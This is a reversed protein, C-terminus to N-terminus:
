MLGPAEFVVLDGFETAQLKGFGDQPVKVYRWAMETLLTANECWILAARDEEALVRRSTM